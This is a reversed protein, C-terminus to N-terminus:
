LDKQFHMEVLQSLLTKLYNKPLTEPTTKLRQDVKPMKPKPKDKKSPKQLSQTKKRKPMKPMALQLLMKLMKRQHLMLKTILHSKMHVLWRLSTILTIIIISRFVSLMSKVFDWYHM